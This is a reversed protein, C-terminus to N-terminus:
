GRGHPEDWDIIPGLPVVGTPNVTRHSEYYHHKIHFFNVTEPVGPHQYLERAYPWL